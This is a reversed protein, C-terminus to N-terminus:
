STILKGNKGWRGPMDVDISLTNLNTRATVTSKTKTHAGCPAHAATFATCATSCASVKEMAARAATNLSGTTLSCRSNCPATAQKPGPGVALESVRLSNAATSAASLFQNTSYLLHTPSMTGSAAISLAVASANCSSM